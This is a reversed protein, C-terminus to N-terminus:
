VQLGLSNIKSLGEILERFYNQLFDQEGIYGDDDLAKITRRFVSKTDIM